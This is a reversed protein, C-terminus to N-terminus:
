SRGNKGKEEYTHWKDKRLAVTNRGFLILRKNVLSHNPERLNVLPTRNGPAGSRAEKLRSRDVNKYLRYDFKKASHTRHADVLADLILTKKQFSHAKIEKKHFSWFGM